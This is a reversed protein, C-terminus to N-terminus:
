ELYASPKALREALANLQKERNNILATLVLKEREAMAVLEVVKTQIALPPLAIKLMELAPRSISLQNTGTASQQLQRQVTNQSIQWVLFAPLVVKPDLVSLHFLHAGCVSPSPLHDVHTAYYRSGRSVFLLDGPRLWDPEKRGTIETRTATAWDIQGNPLIDKMQVVLTSGNSIPDIAGRFPHGGRIQVIDKLNFIKADNKM